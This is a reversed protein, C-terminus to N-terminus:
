PTIMRTLSARTRGSRKSANWSMITEATRSNGARVLDQDRRGVGQEVDAAPAALIVQDGVGALVPTVLGHHQRALVLVEECRELHAV